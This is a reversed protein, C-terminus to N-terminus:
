DDCMHLGPITDQYGDFIIDVVINYVRAFCFVEKDGRVLLRKMM